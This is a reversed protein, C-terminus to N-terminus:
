TTVRPNKRRLYQSIDIRIKERKRTELFHPEDQYVEPQIDHEEMLKVLKTHIRKGPSFLGSEWTSVTWAAVGLLEGFSFQSLSMAQRLNKIDNKTIIM